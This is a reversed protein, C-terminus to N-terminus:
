PRFTIIFSFVLSWRFIGLKFELLKFVITALDDHQMGVLCENGVLDLHFGWM